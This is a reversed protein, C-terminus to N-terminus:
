LLHAPPPQFPWRRPPGAHMRTPPFVHFARARHRAPSPGQLRCSRTSGRLPGSSQARHTGCRRVPRPGAGECGAANRTESQSISAWTSTPAAVHQIEGGEDPVSGVGYRELV